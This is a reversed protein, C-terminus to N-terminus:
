RRTALALFRDPPDDYGDLGWGTSALLASLRREALPEDPRLTRGHRAALAARGSPHFIILRGGSRTIRALEALGATVHPLHNVLGAAFVADVSADALPLRSAEALLLAAHEARRNAKAVALMQPTLDLGIVTGAPGVASRLAPLARGTGCGVDLVAGGTPLDAEAIAAAYAPIDDGFKTDWTTARAAFFARSESIYWRNHGTLRLAVHRIVPWAVDRLDVVIDADHEREVGATDGTSRTSLWIVVDWGAAPPHARRRPGDALTVTGPPPGARWTDEAALPRTDTLRACPRGIADLVGALRDAVLAPFRDDGDLVVHAVGVPILGALADMVEKWRGLETETMAQWAPM